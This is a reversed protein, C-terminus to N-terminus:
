SYKVRTLSPTAPDIVLTSDLGGTLAKRIKRYRFVEGDSCSLQTLLLTTPEIFGSLNPPGGHGAKPSVPLGTVLPRLFSVADVFSPVGLTHNLLSIGFAGLSTLM